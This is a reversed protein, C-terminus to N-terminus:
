NRPTEGAPRAPLDPGPMGDALQQAFSRLVPDDHLACLQQIRQLEAADRGFMVFVQRAPAIGEDRAAAQMLHQHQVLKRELARALAVTDALDQVLEKSYTRALHTTTLARLAEQLITELAVRTGSCAASSGAILSVLIQISTM